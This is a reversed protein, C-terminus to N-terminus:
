PTDLFASSASTLNTLKKMLQSKTTKLTSFVVTRLEATSDGFQPTKLNTTTLKMISTASRLPVCQTTDLMRTSRLRGVTKSLLRILTVSVQILTGTLTSESDQTVGKASSELIPSPHANLM